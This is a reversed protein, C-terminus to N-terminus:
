RPPASVPRGRTQSIRAYRGRKQAACSPQSPRGGGGGRVAPGRATAYGEQDYAYTVRDQGYREAMGGAWRIVARSTKGRPGIEIRAKPCLLGKSLIETVVQSPKLSPAGQELLVEWAVTVTSFGRPRMRDIEEVVQLTEKNYQQPARVEVRGHIADGRMLASVAAVRGAHAVVVIVEPGSSPLRICLVKHARQAGALVHAVHMQMRVRRQQARQSTAGADVSQGCGAIMGACLVSALAKVLVGAV